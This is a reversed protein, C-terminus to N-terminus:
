VNCFILFGNQMTTCRGNGVGCRRFDASENGIHHFGHVMRAAHAKSRGLHQKSQLLRVCSDQEAAKAYDLARQGDHDAADMNAGAEQLFHLTDLQGNFASWM